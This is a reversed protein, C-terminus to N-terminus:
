TSYPLRIQAGSPQLTVMIEFKCFSSTNWPYSRPTSSEEVRLQAFRLTRAVAADAMEPSDVKAALVVLMGEFWYITATPASGPEEDPGHCGRAFVPLLNSRGMSVVEDPRGTSVEEDPRGTPVEEDPGTSMEEDPRGTSVEEDPRGTLAEEDPIVLYGEEISGGLRIPADLGVQGSAISLIAFHARPLYLRRSAMRSSIESYSAQVPFLLKPVAADLDITPPCHRM